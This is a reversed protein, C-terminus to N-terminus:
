ICVMEGPLAVDLLVVDYDNKRIKSLATQDDRAEGTVVIDSTDALIQKLGERVIRHDDVM